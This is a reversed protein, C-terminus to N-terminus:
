GLSAARVLDDGGARAAILTRAPRSIRSLFPSSAWRLPHFRGRECYSRPERCRPQRSRALLHGRRRELRLSRLPLSSAELVRLLEAVAQQALLLSGLFDGLIISPGSCPPESPLVLELLVRLM